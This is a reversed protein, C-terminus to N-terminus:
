GGATRGPASRLVEGSWGRRSSPRWRCAYAEEGVYEVRARPRTWLRERYVQMHGNQEQLAPALRHVTRLLRDPRRTTASSLTRWSGPRPRVVRSPPGPSPSTWTARTAARPWPAPRGAGALAGLQHHHVLAAPQDQHGFSPCLPLVADARSATGTTRIAAPPGPTHSIAAEPDPVPRLAVARGVPETACLRALAGREAALAAATADPLEAHLRDVEARIALWRHLLPMEASLEAVLPRLKAHPSRNNHIDRRLPLLVSRSHAASSQGGLRYLQETLQPALDRGEALLAVLTEQRRRLRRSTAPEPPTDFAAARVLVYPAVEVPGAPRPPTVVPERLASVM